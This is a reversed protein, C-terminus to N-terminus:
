RNCLTASPRIMLTKHTGLSVHSAHGLPTLVSPVGWSVCQFVIILFLYDFYHCIEGKCEGTSTAFFGGACKACAQGSGSTTWGPTCACQGTSGCIGNVCNCQTVSNQTSNALQLCQGTGSMGDVCQECATGQGSCSTCQPGFFGSACQECYTGTFGQPCVCVGQPSCVGSSSCAPSCAASQLDLLTLSSSSPLQTVDPVSDWIITRGSGSALSIAAWTNSSLALSQATLPISTNASPTSPLNSFAAQGSYNKQAYIAIGPALAVNFPLNIASTFSSASSNGFGPSPDISPSSSTLLQHLLEPNTTSTYEGPLLQVTVQTSPSSLKVGVLFGYVYPISPSSSKYASTM